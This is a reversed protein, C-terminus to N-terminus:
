RQGDTKDQIDKGPAEENEDPMETADNNGGNELAAEEVNHSSQVGNAQALGHYAFEKLFYFIM